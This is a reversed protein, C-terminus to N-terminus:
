EHVCFLRQGKLICIPIHLVFMFYSIQNNTTKITKIRKYKCPICVVVFFKLFFQSSQYKKILINQNEAERAKSTRSINDNIM